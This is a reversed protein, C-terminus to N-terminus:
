ISVSGAAKLLTNNESNDKRSKYDTARVSGISDFSLNHAAEVEYGACSSNAVSAIQSAASNVLAQMEGSKLIERLGAKNLEFRISSM